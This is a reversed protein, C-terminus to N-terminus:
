GVRAGVAALLADVAGALDPAVVDPRSALLAARNPFGGPIGIAYVGAARAMEVDEPSDGVYAAQEACVGLRRLGLLLPDPHPKRRPTDDACTLADFLGGVGLRELEASVRARDGSTVVALALGRARLRALAERAGALLRTEEASYHGLWRADAETWRERPLGLAEYTLHWNPSYTSQFRARDFAIGYGAFLREYCRFSAEASDVLTGDWDFLVARLAGTV